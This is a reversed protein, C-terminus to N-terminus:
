SFLAYQLLWVALAFGYGILAPFFATRLYATFTLREVMGMAVVGAASGILVLSGGTGLTLALLSWIAADNTRLVDIAAAALPINDFISSALGIAVTGVILSSATPHDGFVTRSLADFVGLHAIAAVALLIGVFFKLTAIDLRRLMEGISAALHTERPRFIKLTDIVIWVVALGVLLGLYPPLGFASSLIPLLFSGLTMGIVMKESRHLAERPEPLVDSESESIKRSLLFTSVATLALAPVFVNRVITAASFKGAFWLMVTTIDGIPSFAGGANAAIVIACSAVVFNKRRFFQRAIQIAVITTTLNDIISSLVFAIGVILWLQGHDSLNIRFIAERIVDFFGYHALIEVLTMAALLFVVIEFIESGAERIAARVPIAGLVLLAWLVGGLLMAIAAKDIRLLHSLSIAAYGFLFILSALLAVRSLDM